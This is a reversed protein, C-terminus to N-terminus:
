AEAVEQATSMTVHGSRMVAVTDAFEAVRSSHTILVVGCGNDAATRFQALVESETEEDLNGTPEDALLLSPENVLARAIAVRQQEGASLEGPRHAARRSMGVSDLLEEARARGSRMGRSSALAVNEAASMQPLLNFSQFIVGIHDRRFVTRGTDDLSLVDTGDITLRGSDPRVLLGAVNMWTTKGSGSRGLLAVIHGRHVQVEGGELAAVDKSTEAFRLALDTAHLLPRTM